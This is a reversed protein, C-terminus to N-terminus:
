CRVINGTCLRAAQQQRRLTTHRDTQRNSVFGHATRCRSFRDMHRRPSPTPHTNLPHLRPYCRPLLWKLPQKGTSVYTLLLRGGPAASNDAPEHRRDAQDANGGSQEVLRRSTAYTLSDATPPRDKGTAPGVMQFLRGSLM